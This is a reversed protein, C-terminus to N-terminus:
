RIAKVTVGLLPGADLWAKDSTIAPVNERLALALCCRDGLSLGFQRTVAAM